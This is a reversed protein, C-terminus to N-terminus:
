IEDNNSLGVGFSFTMDNAIEFALGTSAKYAMGHNEEEGFLTGHNTKIVGLGLEVFPTVKESLSVYKFRSTAWLGLAEYEGSVYTGSFSNDHNYTSVSNDIGSFHTKAYSISLETAVTWDPSLQYNKGFGFSVQPMLDINLKSYDLDALKEHHSLSLGVFKYVGDDATATICGLSCALGTLIAISKKMSLKILKQMNVGKQKTVQHM